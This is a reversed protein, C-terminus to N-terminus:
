GGFPTSAIAEHVLEVIVNGHCAKPSCCCELCVPEGTNDLVLAAIGELAQIVPVNDLKLQEYLWDKYKNIVEERTGDQGIVFPNGLPTGRMINVHRRKPWRGHYKNTVRLENM